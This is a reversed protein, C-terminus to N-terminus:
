KIKDNAKVSTLIIDLQHETYVFLLTKFFSCLNLRGIIYRVVYLALVFDLFPFSWIKIDSANNKKRWGTYTEFDTIPKFTYWSGVRPIRSMKDKSSSVITILLILVFLLTYDKRLGIGFSFFGFTLPWLASHCDGLFVKPLQEAWFSQFWELVMGEVGLGSLHELLIGHEITDSIDSLVLLILRSANGTAIARSLDDVLHVLFNWLFM